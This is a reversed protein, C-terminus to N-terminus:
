LDVGGDVKRAPFPASVRDMSGSGQSALGFREAVWAVPAFAPNPACGADSCAGGTSSGSRAQPRSALMHRKSGGLTGSREGM